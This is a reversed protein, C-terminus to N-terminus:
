PLPEGVHKEIAQRVACPDIEALDCQADAALAAATGIAEGTALATGIVRLSGLAEHTASLCRGAMGLRPQAASVLADLPVSCSGAVHEFRAREHGDWLEIPWCARAVEGEHSRGELVHTADLEVRGAVRRGERVGIRAPAEALEVEGFGERESRLHACVAAAREAAWAALRACQDADLPDFAEGDPKPLNLTMHAEDSATGPRLLVSDCGAPLAGSRVAHAVGAALQMRAFGAFVRGPVGRLRVIYSPHQLTAASEYRTAAGALFAANADGSADVVVPALLEHRSGGREVALRNAQAGSGPEFAVLEAGLDSVLRPSHDAAESALQEFGAPSIPLVHVRGAREPEGAAGRAALAREFAAPLGAHVRRPPGDDAPEFLGCITHVFANAVNGGLRPGRDLLLTRAGERAAALGAALGAPGAGVVAVDFATPENV